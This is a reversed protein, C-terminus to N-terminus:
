RQPPPTRRETLDFRLGSSGEGRGPHRRRGIWVHTSGDSWRAYRYGRTVRTGERPVEEDRIDLWEREPELVRGVAVPPSAGAVAGRRLWRAKRDDERPVLPIWYDPVRTAVRYALAPGGDTVGNSAAHRRRYAEARDIRSGARGEVRREVGWGLNAMEDRVLLVEEVPDAEVVAAPPAPLLLRGPIADGSLEYMRWGAAEPHATFAPMPTSDGFSDKVTLSRVTCLSGAPVGAVPAIFWDNSYVTAFEILMLQGLDTPGADIGGFDVRANELEWWRAAPMGPYTVPAPIASGKVTVTQPTAPAPPDILSGSGVELSHWDIRGGRHEPADLVVEGTSTQASVAFGYEMHERDWAPGAGPRSVLAECWDMFAVAVGIMTATDPKDVKPKAPLKNEGGREPALAIRLDAFVRAGDPVRGGALAFLRAATPDLPVGGAAPDLPAHALYRKRYQTAKGPAKGFGADLLRLFQLGAEAALRLNWPSRGGDAGFAREGEIVAELPATATLPQAAGERGPRVRQLPAVEIEWQAEVPSGADEADFEGLQWQRALLWLPDHVRAELGVRLGEELNEIRAHPEVRLWTTISARDVVVKRPPSTGAPTTATMSLPGSAGIRDLGPVRAVLSDSGPTLIECIADAIRVTAGDLDTGTITFLTDPVLTGKPQQDTITPRAIIRFRKSGVGWPTVVSVLKEGRQLLEPIAPLQMDIEGPSWEPHFHTTNAGFSVYSDVGPTLNRRGFHTGRIAIQGGAPVTPPDVAAIEPALAEDVVFSTTLTGGDPMTVTINLPGGGDLAPVTVRLVESLQADPAVHATAGGEPHAFGIAKGLLEPLWRSPIEISAGDRAHRPKPQGIWPEKEGNDGNGGNDDDDRNDLEQSM